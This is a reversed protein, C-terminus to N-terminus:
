LRNTLFETTANIVTQELAVTSYTHDAGEVVFLRADGSAVANMYRRAHELPVSQDEDGHVILAPGDFRTIEELPRVTLADRLFEAGIEHPGHRYYDRSGHAGPEIPMQWRDRVLEEMDAVASWLALAQVGGDRAAACAAVLGGLSLGVLGIRDSEVSPEARLVNLAALADAIEASITMDRFRGDSEGSGRFDFRLVNLGAECMARAAKVFLFHAEMRQGTFGHCMVVGPAPAADPIHISAAIRQGDVEFERFQEM